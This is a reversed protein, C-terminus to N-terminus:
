CGGGGSGRSLARLAAKLYTKPLAPTSFLQAELSAGARTKWVWRLRVEELRGHNFCGVLWVAVREPWVFLLGLLVSLSCRRLGRGPLRPPGTSPGKKNPQHTTDRDPHSGTQAENWTRQGLWWAVRSESDTPCSSPRSSPRWGPKPSSVAVKPQNESTRHRASSM